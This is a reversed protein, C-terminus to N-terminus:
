CIPGAKGQGRKDRRWSASRLRVGESRETRGVKEWKNGNQSTKLGTDIPLVVLITDIFRMLVVRIKMFSWFLFTSSM